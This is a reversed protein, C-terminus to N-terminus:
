GQRAWRVLTALNPPKGYMLLGIRFIRAAFWLSAWAGAAGTLVAVLPQWIPPPTTSAMRLMMVFNSVPPVFSLATAFASNPDRSIPLWLFWPVMIVLMIPMMMGQAERMENVAAGVAAMFAGVSAYALLFFVFLFVILVPDLLGLTAFSMLAMVGLGLYLALIVLGVGLQGLIKGTMLEMPSVASLLVEVVRNSKEEVTTTLLYQGSTMVSILLLGMLLAPMVMNLLRNTSDEGTATVARSTVREVSTLASVEERDLGSRRFRAAVIAEAVGDKIGREVRHDLKARLYLDYSGFGARGPAREVADDHIVVLALRDERTAGTPRRARLSEKAVQLDIDPPLSVIDLRPVKGLLAAADVEDGPSKTVSRLPDPLLEAMGLAEEKRRDAIRAPELYARLAAVVEGTPDVVAVQGSVDPSDGEMIIRPMMAVFSGLLAPMVLVGFIFTRTGAAALFEREAVRLIKRM